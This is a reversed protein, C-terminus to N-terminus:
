RKEKVLEYTYLSRSAIVKIVWDLDEILKNESSSV